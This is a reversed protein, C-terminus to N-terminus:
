LLWRMDVRLRFGHWQISPKRYQQGTCTKVSSKRNGNEGTYHPPPDKSMRRSTEPKPNGSSIGVSCSDGTFDVDLLRCSMNEQDAACECTEGACDLHM